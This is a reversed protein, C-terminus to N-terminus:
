WAFNSTIHVASLVLIFCFWLYIDFITTFSRTAACNSSTQRNLASQQPTPGNSAVSSSSQQSPQPVHVTNLAADIEQQWEESAYYSSDRPNNYTNSDNDFTSDSPMSEESVGPFSSTSFLGENFSRTLQATKSM